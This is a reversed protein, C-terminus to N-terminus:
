ISSLTRAIEEKHHDCWTDAHAYGVEDMLCGDETCAHDDDHHSAGLIHGLEHAFLSATTRPPPMTTIRLLLVPPGTRAWGDYTDTKQGTLALLVYEGHHDMQEVVDDLLYTIESTGDYSIWRAVGVVDVGVGVEELLDSASNAVDRAADRWGIGVRDVFEEDAVVM